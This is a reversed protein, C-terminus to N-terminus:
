CCGRQRAFHGRSAVPRPEAPGVASLQFRWLSYPTFVNLSPPKALTGTPILFEACIEVLSFIMTDETNMHSSPYTVVLLAFSADQLDQPSCQNRSFQQEAHPICDCVHPLTSYFSLLSIKFKSIVCAHVSACIERVAMAVIFSFGRHFM